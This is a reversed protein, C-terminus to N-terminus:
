RTVYESLDQQCGQLKHIRCYSEYRTFVDRLESFNSELEQRREVHVAHLVRAIYAFKAATEPNMGRSDRTLARAIELEFRKDSGLPQSTKWVETARGFMTEAEDFRANRRCIDGLEYYADGLLQSTAGGREGEDIAARFFSEAWARHGASKQEIGAQLNAVIGIDRVQDMLIKRLDSPPMSGVYKRLAPVVSPEGLFRFGHIARYFDEPKLGLTIKVLDATHERAQLIGLFMVLQTRVQADESNLRAYLIPIAQQVHLNALAGAAGILLDSDDSSGALTMFFAKAHPTGIEDIARMAWNRCLRQQKRCEPIQDSNGVVIDTLCALVTDGAKILKPNSSRWDALVGQVPEMPSGAIFERHFEQSSCTEIGALSPQVVVMAFLFPLIATRPDISRYLGM